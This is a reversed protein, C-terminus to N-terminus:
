DSFVKRGLKLNITEKIKKLEKELDSRGKSKLIKSIEEVSKRIKRKYSNLIRESANHTLLDIYKLVLEPFENAMEVLVDLASYVHEDTIEDVLEVTKTLNELAWKDDFRKSVFWHIFSKLEKQFDQRNSLGKIYSIRWEWLTKFRQIVDGPLEYKLLQQGIYSIFKERVDSNAKEWFKHFVPDDLSMIGWGYLVALHHVSDKKCESEADYKMNEVAYAYIDRLLSYAEYYLYTAQVYACWAGWLHEVRDKPFIKPIMDKTWHEDTYLLLHLYFGYVAHIIVSTQKNLYYELKGKVEPISNLDKIKNNKKLWFTYLILCAIASGELNSIISGYVDHCCIDKLLIRDGIELKDLKKLIGDIVEWLEDKYDVPILNKEFADEILLKAIELLIDKKNSKKVIEKILKLAKESTCQMLSARLDRILRGLYSPYAEILKDVEEAFKEPNDLANAISYDPKEHLKM